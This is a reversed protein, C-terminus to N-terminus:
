QRPGAEGVNRSGQELADAIRHFDIVVVHLIGIVAGMVLAVEANNKPLGDVMKAELIAFCGAIDMEGPM